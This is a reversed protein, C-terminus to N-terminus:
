FIFRSFNYHHWPGQSLPLMQGDSWATNKPFIVKSVAAAWLTLLLRYICRYHIRRIVTSTGKIDRHRFIDIVNSLAVTFTEFITAYFPWDKSIFTVSIRSWSLRSISGMSRITEFIHITCPRIIAILYIFNNLGNHLLIDSWQKYRPKSM